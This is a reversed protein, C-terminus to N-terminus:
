EQHQTFRRLSYTHAQRIYLRTHMRVFRKLATVMTFTSILICCEQTTGPTHPNTTHIHTYTRTFSRTQTLTHSHALTRTYSHTHTHETHHTGTPTAPQSPPQTNSHETNGYKLLELIGLVIDNVYCFGSAECRKAHHLGGAWNVAIDSEGRNL